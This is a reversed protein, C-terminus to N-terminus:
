TTSKAIEWTAPSVVRLIAYSLAVAPSVDSTMLGYACSRGNSCGTVSSVQKEFLTCSVNKEVVPDRNSGKFIM